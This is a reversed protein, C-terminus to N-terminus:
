RRTCAQCIVNAVVDFKQLFKCTRRGVILAFLYVVLYM